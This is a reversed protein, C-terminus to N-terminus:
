ARIEACNRVATRKSHKELRAAVHRCDAGHLAPVRSRVEAFAQEIEQHHDNVVVLWGSGAMARARQRAPASARQHMEARECESPESTVPGVVKDIINM